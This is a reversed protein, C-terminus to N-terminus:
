GLLKQIDKELAMPNKTPAYRKRPKGNRDILFKTFNWKVRNGFWSKTHKKLFRFVGHTNDGNVDIKETLSFTVGHNVLCSSAMEDNSLPEQGGFQNCPFGLIILGQEKYRQHLKELGEFQPTLGCQTATNVVLIVKGKLSDKPIVDGNAQKIEFDYLNM